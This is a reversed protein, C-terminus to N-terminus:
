GDHSRVIFFRKRPIQRSRLHRRKAGREPSGCRLERCAFRRSGSMDRVVAKWAFCRDELISYAAPNSGAVKPNHAGPRVHPQSQNPRLKRSTRARLHGSNREFHFGFRFRKPVSGSVVDSHTPSRASIPLEQKEGSAGAGAPKVRGSATSSGRSPSACGIALQERTGRVSLPVGGNPDQTPSTALSGDPNTRPLLTIEGISPRRVPAPGPTHGHGLADM